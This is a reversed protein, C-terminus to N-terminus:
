KAGHTRLTTVKAIADFDTDQHLLKTNTRIAIAAILCDVQARITIGLKRCARYIAAANDYDVSETKIVTARALLKELQTVHKGDRAGALIEMRIVDCIEPNLKLLRDVENCARSNTDRLYEIWASTDILPM